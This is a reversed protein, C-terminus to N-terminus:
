DAVVYKKGKWEFEDRQRVPLHERAYSGVLGSTVIFDCVEEDLHGNRAMRELLAMAESLRKGSKYPRDAATFAEFVDAVALIRAPLPIQAARLGRPYGTGDIKEHHMGAYESVRAMKKPFPLSDLMRISVSVHNNIIQREEDILTGRRVKLNLLEEATLLPLAQGAQEYRIAALAELKAIDQESLGEAGLNIKRLFALAADLSALEAAEGVPLASDGAKGLGAELARIRAEKKLLEIRCALLEIRDFVAELKTAKDIVHEPTVIKGVDHLWAALWIEQRQDASFRVAAFPGHDAAHIQDAIAVTLEAVRQIHGATVPSKEDIAAAVMKVTAQLLEELGKILRLNTISVAAQSSLSAVIEIDSKKFDEVAGTARNKANLLQVVGIITDEHDRMPIVLMSKSRYGTKADFDRTGQFDFDAEYVDAIMVVEGSLACFACVNGHNEQGREDVLPVPAWTIERGWGGMSIGLTENHVIAFRLLELKEDKIYLTCGDANTFRKSLEVIMELLREHDKEGSLARGIRALDGVLAHQAEAYLHTGALERRLAALERDQAKIRDVTGQDEQQRLM